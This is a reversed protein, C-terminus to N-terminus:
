SHDVLPVRSMAFVFLVFIFVVFGSHEFGGTVRGIVDIVFYILDNTIITTVLDGEGALLGMTHLTVTVLPIVLLLRKLLLPNFIISLIDLAMLVRTFIAEKANAAWRQFHRMYWMYWPPSWHEMAMNMEWLVEILVVGILLPSIVVVFLIGLRGHQIYLDEMMDMLSRKERPQDRRAGTEATATGEPADTNPIGNGTPGNTSDDM